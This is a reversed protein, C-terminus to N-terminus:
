RSEGVKNSPIFRSRTSHAGFRENMSLKRNWKTTERMLVYTFRHVLQGGRFVTKSIHVDYARNLREWAGRSIRKGTEAMYDHRNHFKM